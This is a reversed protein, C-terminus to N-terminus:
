ASADLADDKRSEEARDVPKGVYYAEGVRVMIRGDHMQKVFAGQVSIQGATVITQLM